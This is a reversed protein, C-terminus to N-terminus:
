KVKRKRAQKVKAHKDGLTNKAAQAREKATDSSVKKFGAAEPDTLYYGKYPRKQGVAGRNIVDKSIQVQNRIFDEEAGARYSRGHTHKYGGKVIGQAVGFSYDRESWGDCGEVDCPVRRNGNDAVGFREELEEYESVTMDLETTQGCKNCTHNYIM